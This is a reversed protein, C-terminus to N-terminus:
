IVKTWLKTIEQGRKLAEEESPCLLLRKVKTTLSNTHRVEWLVGIPKIKVMDYNIMNLQTGENRFMGGNTLWYFSDDTFSVHRNWGKFLGDRIKIDM